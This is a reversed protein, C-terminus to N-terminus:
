SLLIEEGRAQGGHLSGADVRDILRALTPLDASSLSLRCNTAANRRHVPRWRPDWGVELADIIGSTASPTEKNGPRRRLDGRSLAGASHIRSAVTTV